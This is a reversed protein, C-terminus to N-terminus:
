VKELTTINESADDFEMFYFNTVKKQYMWLADVSYPHVLPEFDKAQKDVSGM